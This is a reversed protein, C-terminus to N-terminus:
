KKESDKSKLEVVINELPTKGANKTAQRGANGFSVTGAKVDRPESHGDPFMVIANSDTRAVIVRPRKDVMPGEEGPDIHILVVRIRDNDFLVENHAPDAKVADDVFASKSPVSKLDVYIFAVNEAYLRSGSYSGGPPIYTVSVQRPSATRLIDTNTDIVQSPVRLQVLPIRNTNLGLALSEGARSELPPVVTVKVYENELPFEVKNQLPGATTLAVLCLVAVRIESLM